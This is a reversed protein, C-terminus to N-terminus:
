YPNVGIVKLPLIIGDVRRLPKRLADKRLFRKPFTKRTDIVLVKFLIRPTIENKIIQIAVGGAVAAGVGFHLRDESATFLPLIVQATPKSVGFKLLGAVAFLPCLTTYLNLGLSPKSNFAKVIASGALGTAGAVIVTM